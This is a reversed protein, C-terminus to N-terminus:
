TDLKYDILRKGYIYAFSMAAAEGPFFDKLSHKETMKELSNDSVAVSIEWFGSPTEDAGFTIIHERYAKIGAMTLKESVIFNIYEVIWESDDQQFKKFYENFTDSPMDALTVELGETRRNATVRRDSTVLIENRDRMPFSAKQHPMRRDNGSRREIAPKM